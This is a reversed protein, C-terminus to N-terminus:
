IILCAIIGKAPKPVLNNGNVLTKALSSKGIFPLGPISYMRSSHISAPILSTTKESTLYGEGKDIIFEMELSIASTITAIYQREEIVSINNPLQINKATVIGQGQCSLRAIIPDDLNGKIEKGGLPMARVQNQEILAIAILYDQSAM